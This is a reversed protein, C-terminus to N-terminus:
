IRPLVHVFFAVAAAVLLMFGIFWWSEVFAFPSADRDIVPAHETGDPGCLLPRARAIEAPMAYLTCQDQAHWECSTCPPTPYATM